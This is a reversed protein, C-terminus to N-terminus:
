LINCIDDLNIQTRHICIVRSVRNAGIYKGIADGLVREVFNDDIVHYKGDLSRLVTYVHSENTGHLTVEAMMAQSTRKELEFRKREYDSHEIVSSTLEENTLSELLLHIDIDSFGEKRKEGFNMFASLVMEGTVDPKIGSFKLCSYVAYSVCNQYGKKFLLKNLERVDNRVGLEEYRNRVIELHNLSPIPWLNEM